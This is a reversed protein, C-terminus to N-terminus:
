TQMIQKYWINIRFALEQPYPMTFIVFGSTKVM